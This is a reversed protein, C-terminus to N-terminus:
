EQEAMKINYFRYHLYLKNSKLIELIYRWLVEYPIIELDEYLDGPIRTQSLKKYYNQSKELVLEYNFNKDVVMKLLRIFMSNRYNKRKDLHASNYMQLHEVRHKLEEIAGEKILFMFQIVLTSVNYGWYEKPFGPTKNLFADFDFGWRLLKSNNVYLLFARHLYWREQDMEPM